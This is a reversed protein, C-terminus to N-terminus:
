ELGAQRREEEEELLKQVARKKMNEDWVLIEPQPVRVVALADISKKRKPRVRGNKFFQPASVVRNWEAAWAALADLEEGFTNFRTM